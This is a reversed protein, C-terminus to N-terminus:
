EHVLAIRRYLKKSGTKEQDEAIHRRYRLSAEYNIFGMSGIGCECPYGSSFGNVKMSILELITM